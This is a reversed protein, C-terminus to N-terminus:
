ADEDPDTHDPDRLPRWAGGLEPLRFSYDVLVEGGLDDVGGGTAGDQGPQGQGVGLSVGSEQDRQAFRHDGGDGTLFRGHLFLAQRAGSAGQAGGQGALVGEAAGFLM